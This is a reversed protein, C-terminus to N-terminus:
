SGQNSESYIAQRRVQPADEFANLSFSARRAEGEKGGRKLLGVELKM